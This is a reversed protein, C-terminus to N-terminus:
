QILSYTFEQLSEISTKLCSKNISNIQMIYIMKILLTDLEYNIM